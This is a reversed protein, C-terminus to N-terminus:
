QYLDTIYNKIKNVIDELKDSCKKDLGLVKDTNKNVLGAFTNNYKYLFNDIQEQYELIIEEKSKDEKFSTDIQSTIFDSETQVKNLFDQCLNDINHSM